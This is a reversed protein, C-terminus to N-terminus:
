KTEKKDKPAEASTSDKLDAAPTIMHVSVLSARGGFGPEYEFDVYDGPQLHYDTYSFESIVDQGQCESNEREYATFDKLGSYNFAVKGKSESKRVGVIVVRM